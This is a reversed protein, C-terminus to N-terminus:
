RATFGGDMFLTQGTMYDSAPSALFVAVGALDEDKGNRGLCTRAALASARLPDAFVPATLGTPFFGPAIANCTIGFGGWAEAMARALQMVGGKAAGYPISDPMARVSQLSAILLVRGWGAARMGPLLARSLFFPAALMSEVQTDWEAGGVQDWPQRCNLGAAHVVISPSGFPVAARAALAELGARNAVDGPCAAAGPGIAAAQAELAATGRACLVVRAGAGHLARAIALGLGSSGGTVLAVRGDLRFRELVDM